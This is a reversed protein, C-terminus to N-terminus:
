GASRKPNFEAVITAKAAELLGLAEIYELDQTWETYHRWLGNEDLTAVIIIRASELEAPKDKSM